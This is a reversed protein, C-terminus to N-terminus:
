GKEGVEYVAQLSLINLPLPRTQRVAICAESDSGGPMAFRWDELDGIEGFVAETRNSVRRRGALSLPEWTGSYEAYPAVEANISKWVRLWASNINKLRGQGDGDRLQIAMPLSEIVSEYGLGVFVTQADEPLTVMGDEDVVQEPLDVGDALIQVTKGILHSAFVQTTTESQSLTVFQHTVADLTVLSYKIVDFKSLLEDNLDEAAAKLSDIVTTYDDIGDATAVKDIVFCIELTDNGTFFGSIKSLIEAPTDSESFSFDDGGTAETLADYGGDTFSPGYYFTINKALLGNIAPAPDDPVDPGMVPPGPVDPGPVMPGDIYYGPIITTSTINIMTPGEDTCQRWGEAEPDDILEYGTYDPSADIWASSTSYALGNNIANTWGSMSFQSVLPFPLEPNLTWLWQEPNVLGIDGNNYFTITALGDWEFLPEDPVWIPPGPIDPGPIPPGPIMAGPTFNKHTTLLITARTTTASPTWKIRNSLDRIAEFSDAGADSETIGIENLAEQFAEFNSFGPGTYFGNYDVYSDMFPMNKALGNELIDLQNPVQREIYRVANGNIERQIVAYISDEEGEELVTCNSEFLGQTTHRHWGVVSQAREYIQGIQEGSGITAWINTDRQRQLCLDIIGGYTVHIALQTLDAGDYSNQENSYSFERVKRGTAQVFIITNNAVLASIAAGGYSTQSDVSFTLPIVVGTDRDARGIWEGGTTGIGLDGRSCLWQIQEQQTGGLTVSFASNDDVGYRFDYYDEIKSFWLTAGQESTGGFVIRNAHWQVTKPYGTESSWAGKRWIRTPAQSTFPARVIATVQTTSIYGTVEFVGEIVAEEAEITAIRDNGEGDNDYLYFRMRLLVREKEDDDYSYNKDSFSDRRLINEWSAGGDRSRDVYLGGFWGGATTLTWKGLVSLVGSTGTDKLALRLTTDPRLHGISYSRGISQPSFFSSSASVTIEDGTSIEPNDITTSLTADITYLNAVLRLQGIYTGTFVGTTTYTVLDQWTAGADQSGQLRVYAGLSPDPDMAIADITVTRLGSSSITDSTIGEGGETVLFEVTEVLPNNTLATVTLTTSTVNEDQMPPWDFEMPDLQWDLRSFYSLIQVPSQENVMFLLDNVSDWQVNFIQEETWPTEIEYPLNDLGLVPLGLRHFRMYLHGMEICYGEARSAQFGIVRCRRDPFKAAAVFKYGMRRRIPGYPTLLFNECHALGGRWKDLDARSDM